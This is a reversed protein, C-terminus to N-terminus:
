ERSPISYISFYPIPEPHTAPTGPELIPLSVQAQWWVPGNGSLDLLRAFRALIQEDELSTDLRTHESEQRPSGKVKLRKARRAIGGFPRDPFAAKLQEVSAVPYLSKLLADEAERWHRRAGNDKQWIYAVDEQTIKMFPQWKIALLFWGTGICDLVISKTVLRIFKQRQQLTFDHWKESAVRIDQRISLLEQEVRQVEAKKKELDALTIRLNKLMSYNGRLDEDDMTEGAVDLRHRIYAIKAKVKGITEEITAEHQVGMAVKIEDLQKLMYVHVEDGQSDDSGAAKSAHALHELLKQEFVADLTSVGITAITDDVELRKPNSIVYAPHGTTAMRHVHTTQGHPSALVPRGNYCVGALLANVPEYAVQAYRVSKETREIPTGDIDVDNLHYFAFWFDDEDVIAPHANKKVIRGKYYVHGIYAVNTLVYLLGDWSKITWGGPVKTLCIRHAYKGEPLDPFIPKGVVQRRLTAFNAGLQRFRKFLQNVVPAHEPLPLLHDGTEDPMLGVPIAHGAYEGRAAKHERNKLMVGKIQKRIYAAAEQAEDLFRKLDEREPKNFDFIHLQTIIIVDQKKGLDAFIAPQIMDEHRFLRSVDSVMIAGVEGTEIRKTVASLGPREDIRLTGSANKITGDKQKNEIYLITNSEPWGYEAGLAMLDKTQQLASEKNKIYQNKTSQRAYIILLKDTPLTWRSLDLLSEREKAIEEATLFKRM